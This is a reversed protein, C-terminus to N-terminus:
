KRKKKRWLLILCSWRYSVTPIRQHHRYHFAIDAFEKRRARYVEDTFGPHDSDLESGYSLIQNAFRDLESIHQPFWPINDDKDGATFVRVDHQWFSNVFTELIERCQLKFFFCVKTAETLKSIASKFADDNPLTMTEAYFEYKGTVDPKSEIHVLDVGELCALATALSGNEPLKFIISTGMKESGPEEGEKYAGNVPYGKIRSKFM